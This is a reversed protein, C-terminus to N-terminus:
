DVRKAFTTVVFVVDIIVASFYNEYGIRKNGVDNEKRELRMNNKKEDVMFFHFFVM